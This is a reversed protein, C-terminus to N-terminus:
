SFLVYEVPPFNNFFRFNKPIKVITMVHKNIRGRTLALGPIITVTLSNFGDETEGPSIALHVILTSLREVSSSDKLILTFPSGTNAKSQVVLCDTISGIVTFLNSRSTVDFM